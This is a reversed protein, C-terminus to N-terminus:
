KKRRLQEQVKEPLSSISYYTVTFCQKSESRNKQYYGIHKLEDENYDIDMQLDNLDANKGKSYRVVIPKARM